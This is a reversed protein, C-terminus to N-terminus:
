VRFLVIKIAKACLSIQLKIVWSAFERKRSAFESDRRDEYDEEGEVEGTTSFTRNMRAMLQLSTMQAVRVLRGM